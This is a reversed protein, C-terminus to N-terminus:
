KGCIPLGSPDAAPQDPVQAACPKGTSTDLLAVGSLPVFRGVPGALPTQRTGWAYGLLLGLLVCLGCLTAWGGIYGITEKM